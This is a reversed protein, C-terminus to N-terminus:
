PKLGYKGRLSQVLFAADYAFGDAPKERLLIITNSAGPYTFNYTQGGYTTTTATGYATAGYRNGTATASYNTNATTPTTYAASRTLDNSDVVMFYPYGDKQALEACRLLTYDAVTQQDDFANGEFAVRYMDPALQTESFGANFAGKQVYSAGCGGLTVCVVLVMALRLM